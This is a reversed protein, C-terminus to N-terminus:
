YQILIASILRLYLLSKGTSCSLRGASLRITGVMVSIVTSVGGVNSHMHTISHTLMTSM